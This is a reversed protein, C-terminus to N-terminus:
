FSFLFVIRSQFRGPIRHRVAYESEGSMCDYHYYKGCFMDCKVVDTSQEKCVFCEHTDMMCENGLQALLFPISSHSNNSLLPLFLLLIISQEKCVFCEHTDMMCENGLFSIIFSFPFFYYFLLTLQLKFRICTM